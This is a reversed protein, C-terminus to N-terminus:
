KGKKQKSTFERIIEEDTKGLFKIASEAAPAWESKPYEELIRRYLKRAEQEDNLYTAEDYLQALLFIAAPRQGFAPYADICRDLAVKAQPINNIVRAVQATKILYVPSMSDSVCHFAFGTFAKIARNATARVIDTAGLLVSDMYRAERRLSDCADLYRQGETKQVGPLSTSQATEGSGSPKCASLMFFVSLILLWRTGM